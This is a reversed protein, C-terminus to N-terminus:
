EILNHKRFIKKSYNNFLMQQKAIISFRLAFGNMRQTYQSLIKKKRRM